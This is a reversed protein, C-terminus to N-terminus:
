KMMLTLLARSYQKVHRPATQWASIRTRCAWRNDRHSLVDRTVGHLLIRLDGCASLGFECDGGTRSLVLVGKISYVMRSLASAGAAGGYPSLAGPAPIISVLPM